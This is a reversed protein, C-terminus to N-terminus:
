LRRAGSFIRGLRAALLAPPTTAAWPGLLLRRGPPDARGRAFLRRVALRRRADLSRLLSALGPDPSLDARRPRRDRRHGLAGRGLHLAQHRRFGHHTAGTTSGFPRSAPDHPRRARRQRIVVEGVRRKLSQSGVLLLTLTLNRYSHCFPRPS